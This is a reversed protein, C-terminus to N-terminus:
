HLFPQIENMVRQISEEFTMIDKNPIGVVYKINAKGDSTSVYTFVNDNLKNVNFYEYKEDGITMEILQGPTRYDIFIRRAGADSVKIKADSYPHAVTYWSKEQNYFQIISLGFRRSTKNIIAFKPYKEQRNYFMNEQRNYFMFAINDEISKYTYVDDETGDVAHNYAERERKTPLSIIKYDPIVGRINRFAGLFHSDIRASLELSGTILEDDNLEREANILRITRLTEGRFEEKRLLETKVDSIHDTRCDTYFTFSQGRDLTVVIRHSQYPEESIGGQQKRRHSRRNSRKHSIKNGKRSRYSRKRHRISRLPHSFLRPM